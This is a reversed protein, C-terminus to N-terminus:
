CKAKPVRKRQALVRATSIHKQRKASKRKPQLKKPGCTHKRFQRVRIHAALDKLVRALSPVTLDAFRRTWEPEPIAIMMGHYAAGIEGALYYGSIKEPAADEGHVVRMAAKVVSLANYTLLAVSFALLAAKPYCLTNIESHLSQSLEQFANEITWRELYVMAIKVAKADARPINTLIHIERDGKRTPKDLKVTVRRVILTQGEADTLRLDQEYVKGTPCTGVKRPKGIPEWSLTSGHQRIVFFADQRALGFLFRTTCFNRDAIWADKAEATQLLETLLSREQAHADECPIVDTALLVEPELVVLAQGPLPAAKTQRTEKLRHDTGPFHNGDVIRARYGPLLPPRTAKMQRILRQLRDAPRRVLERSVAPETGDLKNYVSRISVTFEERANQYADHVSRRIGCVVLNMLDVVSSFLLTGAKQRQATQVFLEDLSECAFVNELTGRVM